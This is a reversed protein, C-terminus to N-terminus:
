IIYPSIYKHRKVFCCLNTPNAILKGFPYLSPNKGLTTDGLIRHPNEEM